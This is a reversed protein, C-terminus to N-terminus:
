SMDEEILSDSFALNLGESITFSLYGVTEDVDKPTVFMAYLKPSIMEELFEKQEEEELAELLSAMSDHVITAADVVTPVGIGIVRVSLNEENLGERHNGVGSGPSIGTDTIQITRNLRATSRAALADIAIVVDPKTESVIGQVIELTEMGTQAMVGPAIGSIQHMKMHPDSKLGYERIVHRTMHLKGVARPGLSDATIDQNGLGVVLVSQQRGFDILERVHHALEESIERHYDEDPVSLDPAEITIYTGQPKGMTKAGNETTIRVVTTRVDKEKDYRERIEVGHVEVHDARFRETEELALDTRIRNRGAMPGGRKRFFDLRTIEM